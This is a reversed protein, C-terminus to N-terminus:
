LCWLKDGWNRDLWKPDWRMINMMGYKMGM